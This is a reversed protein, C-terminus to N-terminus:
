EGRMSQYAKFNDVIEKETFGKSKMYEKFKKTEELASRFISYSMYKSLCFSVVVVVMVVFQLVKLREDLSALFLMGGLLALFELISKSIFYVVDHVKKINSKEQIKVSNETEYENAAQIFEFLRM